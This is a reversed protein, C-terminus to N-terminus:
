KMIWVMRVGIKGEKTTENYNVAEYDFLAKGGRTLVNKNVEQKGDATDITFYEEKSTVIWKGKLEKIGDSHNYSLDLLYNEITNPYITVWPTSFATKLPGEGALESATAAVFEPRNNTLDFVGYANATTSTEVSSENFPAEKEGSTYQLNSNVPNGSSGYRSYSLYSLAAWESNKILHTDINLIIEPYDSPLDAASKPASDLDILNILESRETPYGIDKFGYKDLFGVIRRSYGLLDIYKVENNKTIDMFPKSKLYCGQVTDDEIKEVTCEYKSVWIGPLETDYEGCKYKIDNADGTNYRTFAEPINYKNSYKTDNEIDIGDFTINTNERLFKIDIEEGDIYYAFRPIWVYYSEDPMKINAWKKSSVGYNYWEVDDTVLYEQHSDSWGVKQIQSSIDTDSVLLPDNVKEIEISPTVITEEGIKVEFCITGVFTTDIELEINTKDKENLNIKDKNTIPIKTEPKAANIVAITDTSTNAKDFIKNLKINVKTVDQTNKLLYVKETKLQEQTISTIDDVEAGFNGSQANLLEELVYYTGVKGAFNTANVPQESIFTGTQFNIFVNVDLNALGFATDLDDATFYFYNNLNTDDLGKINTEALNSEFKKQIEINYLSLEKPEYIVEKEGAANEKTITYEEKIYDYINDGLYNDWARYEERIVYIKEKIVKMQAIFTQAEMTHYADIGTFIGTGVMVLMLIIMIILAVMTIGRENRM